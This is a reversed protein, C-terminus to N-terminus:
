IKSVVYAATRPRVGRRICTFLWYSMRLLVISQFSLSLEWVDGSLYPLYLVILFLPVKRPGTPVPMMTYMVKLIILMAFVNVVLILWGSKFLIYVAGATSTFIAYEAGPGLLFENYTQGPTTSTFVGLGTLRQLFTEIVYFTSPAAGCCDENFIQYMSSFSNIRGLAYSLLMNESIATAGGRSENRFSYLYSISEQFVLILVIPIAFFMLIHLRGRVKNDVWYVSFAMAVVFYGLLSKQSLGMVLVCLGGIVMQWPPVRLAALFLFLLYPNFKLIVTQVVGTIGPAPPAGVPISGLFLTFLAVLLLIYFIFKAYGQHAFWTNLCSGQRVVTVILVLPALYASAYLLLGIPDFDVSVHPFDGLLHGNQLVLLVSGVLPALYLYLVLLWLKSNAQMPKM